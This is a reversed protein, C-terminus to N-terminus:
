ENGGEEESYNLYLAPLSGDPVIEFLELNYYQSILEESNSESGNYSQLNHGMLYGIMIALVFSFSIIVPRIKGSFVTVIDSLRILNNEYGDVRAQLRAYFDPSLDLAAKQDTKTYVAAFREHLQRCNRCEALHNKFQIYEDKPLEGEIFEILKDRINECNKM